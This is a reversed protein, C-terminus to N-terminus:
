ARKLEEDIKEDLWRVFSIDNKLLYEQFQEAKNRDLDAHLRKNRKQRLRYEHKYDRGKIIENTM